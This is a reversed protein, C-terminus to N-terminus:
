EILEATVTNWMIIFEILMFALISALFAMSLWILRRGWRKPLACKSLEALLASADAPRQTADVSLCRIALKKFSGGIRTRRIAAVAASVDGKQAMELPSENAQKSYTAQGTLIKCLIGGLAFVDSRRTIRDTYGNAQEPPMYALTGLVSGVITESSHSAIESDLSHDNCKISEARNLDKALGWDMVQVEGHQGVMINSPKLDRHIIGSRHAYAVAECIHGFVRLLESLPALPISDLMEAFTQGEILKMAVFPSGNEFHGLEYIPVIGPHQLRACIRAEQEIRARMESSDQFDLLLKIASHRQLHNDFVRWVKSSGGRAVESLFEYRGDSLRPLAEENSDGSPTRELLDKSTIRNAVSAIVDCHLPFRIMYPDVCSLVTSSRHATEDVLNSRDVDQFCFGNKFELELQVLERLLLEVPISSGRCLWDEIRPSDGKQLATEFEWCLEHLSRLSQTSYNIM